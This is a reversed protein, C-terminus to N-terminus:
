HGVLKVKLFGGDDLQATAAVSCDSPRRYPM